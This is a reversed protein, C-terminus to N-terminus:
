RCAPEPSPAIAHGLRILGRALTARARRGGTRRTPEPVAPAGPACEDFNRRVQDVGFVFASPLEM